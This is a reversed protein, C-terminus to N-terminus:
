ESHEQNSRLPLAIQTARGNRAFAVRTPAYRQAFADHSSRTPAIGHRPVLIGSLVEDPFPCPNHGSSTGGRGNPM